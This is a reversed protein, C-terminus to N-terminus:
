GGGAHGAHWGGCLCCVSQQVPPLECACWGVREVGVDVSWASQFTRSVLKGDLNSMFIRSMLARAHGRQQRQKHVSLVQSPMFDHPLWVPMSANCAADPQCFSKGFCFQTSWITNCKTPCVLCPDLLLHLSSGTLVIHTLLLVPLPHNKSLLPWFPPQPPITLLFSPALPLLCPSSLSPGGPAAQGSLHAVWSAFRVEQMAHWVDMARDPAQKACFTLLATYVFATAPQCARYNAMAGFVAEVQEPALTVTTAAQLFATFIHSNMKLSYSNMDALVQLLSAHSCAALCFGM